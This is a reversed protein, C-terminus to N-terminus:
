HADDQLTIFYYVRSYLNYVTLTNKIVWKEHAVNLDSTRMVECSGKAMSKIKENCPSRYTVHLSKVLHRVTTGALSLSIRRSIIM